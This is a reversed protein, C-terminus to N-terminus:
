RTNGFRHSNEPILCPCIIRSLDINEHCVSICTKRYAACSREASKRESQVAASFTRQAMESFCDGFSLDLSKIFILPMRYLKRCEAFEIRCIYVIRKDFVVSLVVCVTQASADCKDAGVVAVAELFKLDSGREVHIGVCVTGISKRLAHCIRTFGNQCDLIRILIRYESRIVAKCEIIEAAAKCKAYASTFCRHLYGKVIFYKLTCFLKVVAATRKRYVTRSLDHKSIM